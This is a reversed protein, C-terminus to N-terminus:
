NFTVTALTRRKLLLAAATVSLMILTAPEPVAGGSALGSGSGSTNGFRARWAAYDGADVVGLNDVENQLPGGKRWLVYDASDVVGNANYDGPVPQADVQTISLNKYIAGGQGAALLGIDGGYSLPDTFSYEFVNEPNSGDTVKINFLGDPFSHIEIHHLVPGLAPMWGMNQNGSSGGASNIRFAGPPSPYGPHFVMTSQSLGPSDPDEGFRLGNAGTGAQNPPSVDTGNWGMDVTIVLERTPKPFPTVSFAPEHFDFFNVTSTRLGMSDVTWHEEIGNVQQATFQPYDVTADASIINFPEFFPLAVPGASATGTCVLMSILGGGLFVCVRKESKM